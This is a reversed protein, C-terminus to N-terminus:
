HTLRNPDLVPGVNQEAQDPDFSNAFIMLQQYLVRSALRSIISFLLHSHDPFELGCVASLGTAGCPLAM